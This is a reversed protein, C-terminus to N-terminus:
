KNNEVYKYCHLHYYISNECIVKCEDKKEKLCLACAEILQGRCLPCYKCPYNPVKFGVPSFSIIKFFHKNEM